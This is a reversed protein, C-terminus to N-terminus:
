LYNTDIYIQNTTSKFEPIADQKSLISITDTAYSAVEQLEGINNCMHPPILKVNLLKLKELIKDIQMIRDSFTITYDMYYDSIYLIEDVYYGTLWQVDDIPLKCLEDYVDKSVDLRRGDLTVVLPSNFTYTVNIRIVDKPILQVYCPFSPFGYDIPYENRITVPLFKDLISYVDSITVGLLRKAVITYAVRSPSDLSEIYEVLEEEREETYNDLRYLMYRLRGFTKHTPTTVVPRVDTSMEKNIKFRFEPSISLLLLQVFLKDEKNSRIYKLKKNKEKINHLKLIKVHSYEKM